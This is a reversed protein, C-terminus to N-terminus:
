LAPASQDVSTLSVLTIRFQLHHAKNVLVVPTGKHLDLALANGTFNGGVVAIRVHGNRLSVLRFIPGKAPFVGDLTVVGRHATVSLVAANKELPTTGKVSFTLVVPKPKNVPAKSGSQTGSTSGTSGATQGSSSAGSSKGTTSSSSGSGSSAGS